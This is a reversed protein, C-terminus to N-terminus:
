DKRSSVHARQLNAKHKVVNRLSTEFRSTKRDILPLAVTIMCVTGALAGNLSWLFFATLTYFTGLVSVGEMCVSILAMAFNFWISAIVFCCCLLSVISPGNSLNSLSTEGYYIGLLKMIKLVPSYIGDIVNFMDETGHNDNPIAALGRENLTGASIMSSEAWDKHTMDMCSNTGKLQTEEPSVRSSM